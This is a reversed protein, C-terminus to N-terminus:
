APLWWADEGSPSFYLPSPDPWDCAGCRAHPLSSLYVTNYSPLGCRQGLASNPALAMENDDRPSSHCLGPPKPCTDGSTRTHSTIRGKEM